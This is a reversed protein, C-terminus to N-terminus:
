QTVKAEKRLRISIKTAGVKSLDKVQIASTKHARNIMVGVSWRKANSVKM